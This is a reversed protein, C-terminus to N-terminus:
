KATTFLLCAIAYHQFFFRKKNKDAHSIASHQSKENNEIKKM